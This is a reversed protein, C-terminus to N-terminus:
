IKLVNMSHFYANCHLLKMIPHQRGGKQNQQLFVKKAKVETTQECEEDVVVRSHVWNRM